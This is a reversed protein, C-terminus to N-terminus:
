CIQPRSGQEIVRKRDFILAVYFLKIFLTLHYFCTGNKLLKFINIQVVYLLSKRKVKWNRQTQTVIDVDLVFRSFLCVFIGVVFFIRM